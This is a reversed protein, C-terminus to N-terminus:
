VSRPAPLLRATIVQMWVTNVGKGAVLYVSCMRMHECATGIYVQVNQWPRRKPVHKFCLKRFNAWAYEKPLHLTIVDYWAYVKKLCVARCWVLCM